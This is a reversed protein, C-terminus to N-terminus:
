TSIHRCSLNSINIIPICNPIGTGSLTMDVLIMASEINNLAQLHNGEETFNTYYGLFRQISHITKLEKQVTQNLDTIVVGGTNAGQAKASKLQELADSLNGLHVQCKAARFYAKTFSPELKIAQICDQLANQYDGIEISAAARNGFYAKNSHDLELTLRFLGICTTYLAVADRYDGKKFCANAQLKIHEPDVNTRVETQLYMEM